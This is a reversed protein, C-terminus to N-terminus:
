FTRKQVEDVEQLTHLVQKLDILKRRIPPICKVRKCVSGLIERLYDEVSLDKDNLQVGKLSYCLLAPQCDDGCLEESFLLATM